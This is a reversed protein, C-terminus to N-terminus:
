ALRVEVAQEALCGSRVEAARRHPGPPGVLLQQEVHEQAVQDDPREQDEDAREAWTIANAHLRTALPRALSPDPRIVHPM